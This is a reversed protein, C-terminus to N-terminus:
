GRETQTKTLRASATLQRIPRDAPVNRDSAVRRSRICREHGHLETRPRGVPQGPTEPAHESHSGSSTGQGRSRTEYIEDNEGGERNPTREVDSFAGESSFQCQPFRREAFSRSNKSGASRIGDAIGQNRVSRLWLELGLTRAMTVIPVSLGRYVEQLAGQFAEANVVGLDACVLQRSMVALELRQNSIARAPAASLFAKRKRQLVEDPVIGTLARRMLSRRHGPRVLQERPLACVLELLDRDLYPYRKEYCPDFSLASCALQRRMVDLTSIDEQFSPRPGFLKVRSHYGRLAARNRSAFDVNLWSAPQLYKPVGCLAPPLFERVAEFLLHFWPRRKFLAWSKLQRALVGFRREALLDALEPIPTPVGGLMEDGGIGSLVVRFGQARIHDAYAKGARNLSGCGGPSAVFTRAEIEGDFVDQMGADIHCGHRGRKAEVRTFYPRENWNPDSDDYYSVTELQLPEDLENGILADAMCVISSSDMGGSLEALVPSPSRLRRRVAEAFVTRFHEEYESDKRYSIRKRPDFDWYKTVRETRPKILACCSPPLSRIGVYPTLRTDPFFSLWGALYEEELAFPQGALLVLPDLVTCWRVQNNEISYYLHRTGIPDKALLLLRDNPNWISLAWDGILKALCTTGCREYATGVIALDTSDQSILGKLLGILEARNDLRGDWTLVAGSKLVCPQTEERSEKTTHFAFYLIDVGAKSYSSQGDPGYPALVGRVKHIYERTAPQSEFQWRGFQVSVIEGPSGRM